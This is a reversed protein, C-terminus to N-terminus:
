NNEEENLTKICPKCIVNENDLFILQKDNFYKGCDICQKKTNNRLWKDAYQEAKNVKSTFTKEISYGLFIKCIQLNNVGGNISAYDVIKQYEM